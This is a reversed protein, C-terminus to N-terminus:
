DLLAEDGMRLFKEQREKILQNPDMGILQRLAEAIAGGVAQIAKEPSRHAAGLPEPVIRDIVGFKLLDQATLKLSEAAQEAHDSSRWLISACGEPSIVSYISHEMMMVENATALAIAGGSGGEGIVVSVVPQGVSLFKEISRAIAESQGREEAGIGPYAGPTDVFTIVPLNFKDALEVLRVAKRYGEPKPMGFSHKIRTETDSGKEQGIVVVSGGRFRGLGGLIAADESFTRDGALPVFDDILASIFDICHPREPHRAVQVKQWATLKSYTSGLAKDIRTQLKLVEDAIKIDGIDSLHRLEELQGELEAINKEFDFFSLM